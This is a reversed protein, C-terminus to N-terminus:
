TASAEWLGNVAELIGDTVAAGLVQRAREQAGEWAPLVARILARGGDTAELNRARGAGLTSRVWGRELLRDLDRSLTSKDLRLRRCIESAQVPGRAAVVALVNMQSVRVGHPRLADDYIGTAVRNLIQVRGAFCEDEIRRAPSGANEMAM